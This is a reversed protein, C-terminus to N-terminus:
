HHGEKLSEKDESHGRSQPLPPNSLGDFRDTVYRSHCAVCSETMWSFVKVQEQTDKQEGAKALSAALQHFRKDMQLFGEPVSAVLDQRDQETLSQAMIFSDHIAQGQQAVTAHNGQVIASFVVQMAFQIEVMEQVLLGRLKPSLVPGAAATNLQEFTDNQVRYQQWGQFDFHWWEYEYVTFGDAEMASRLLDRHQRQLESGGPYDPYSRESMEDYLGPMEVAEGSALDYLTLDVAAGRNHRSGKAPDAVFKKGSEPTADWFIKTVYWPRYADHVLLGYGQAQLQQAIRGLAEAAPRQLFAQASSYVPTGLFNNSGAYRVDLKITDGYATIDVLDSDKFDGDEEPPSAQQAEAELEAVPRVPEIKFFREDVAEVAQAQASESGAEDQGFVPGAFGVVLGFVVGGFVSIGYKRNMLKAEM